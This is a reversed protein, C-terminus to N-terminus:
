EEEWDLSDETIEWQPFIDKTYLVDDTDILDETPYTNRDLYEWAPSAAELRDGSIDAYTPSGSRTFFVTYGDAPDSRVNFVEYTSGDDTTEFSSSSGTVTEWAPRFVKRGYNSALIFDVGVPKLDEVLRHTSQGINKAKGQLDDLLVTFFAYKNEAYRMGRPDIRTYTDLGRMVEDPTGNSSGSSIFLLIASRYEEDSRGNRNVGLVIGLYDLFIGSINDIDKQESVKLLLDEIVNFQKMIITYMKQYNVKNTRSTLRSLAVKIHDVRSIKDM